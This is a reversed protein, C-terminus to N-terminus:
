GDLHELLAAAKATHSAARAHLLEVCALPVWAPVGRDGALWSGLDRLQIGARSSGPRQISRALPARWEHGYLEVGTAQLIDLPTIEQPQVPQPIAEVVAAHSVRELAAPQIAPDMADELAVQLARWADPCAHPDAQMANTIAHQLDAWMTAIAVKTDQAHLGACKRGLTDTLIGAYEIRGVHREIDAEQGACRELVWLINRRGRRILTAIDDEYGANM